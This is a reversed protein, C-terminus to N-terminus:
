SVPWTADVTSIPAHAAAQRGLQRRLTRDTLLTELVEALQAPNGPPVLFGNSGHRVLEPIGSIPTTVVPLGTAM